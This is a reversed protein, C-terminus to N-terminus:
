KKRKKGWKQSFDMVMVLVAEFDADSATMDPAATLGDIQAAAEL